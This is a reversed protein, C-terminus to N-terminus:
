KAATLIIKRDDGFSLEVEDETIKTVKAKKISDGEKLIKNNVVVWADQNDYAIGSLIFEDNNVLDKISGYLGPSLNYTKKSDDQKSKKASIDKYTFLFATGTFVLVLIVSLFKKPIKRKSVPQPKQEPETLSTQTKRLADYIVSM